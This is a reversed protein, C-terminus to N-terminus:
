FNEKFMINGKGLVLASNHKKYDEMTLKYRFMQCLIEFLRKEETATLELGNM